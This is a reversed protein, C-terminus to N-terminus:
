DMAHACDTEMWLISMDQIFVSRVITGTVEMRLRCCWSAANNVYLDWTKMNEVWAQGGQGICVSLLDPNRKNEKKIAGPKFSGTVLEDSMGMFRNSGTGDEDSQKRQNRVMAM